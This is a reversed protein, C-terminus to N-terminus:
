YRFNYFLIPVENDNECLLCIKENRMELQPAGASDDKAATIDPFPKPIERKDVEFSFVTETVSVPSGYIAGVATSNCKPWTMSMFRQDSRHFSM